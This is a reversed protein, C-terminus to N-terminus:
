PVIEVGYVDVKLTYARGNERGHLTMVGVCPDGRGDDCYAHVLPLQLLRQSYEVLQLLAAHLRIGACEVRQQLSTGALPRAVLSQLYKM